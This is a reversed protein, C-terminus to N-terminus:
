NSTTFSFIKTQLYSCIFVAILALLTHDTLFPLRKMQQERAYDVPDLNKYLM